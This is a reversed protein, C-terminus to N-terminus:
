KNWLVLEGALMEIALLADMMTLGVEFETKILSGRLHEMDCDDDIIVFREPKVEAEDLWAQIERGRPVGVYLEGHKTPSRTLDPTMGILPAKVGWHRLILRMENLGCFRWSSSLIIEAGTTDTVHNLADVCDGDGIARLGSREILSRRNVLVGDIDLFVIPTLRSDSDNRVQRDTTGTM